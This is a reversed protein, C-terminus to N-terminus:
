TCESAPCRRARPAPDKMIMAEDKAAPGASRRRARPMYKLQTPWQHSGAASMDITEYDATANGQGSTGGGCQMIKGPLYMVSSAHNYYSFNRLIDASWRPVTWDLVATDTRPGSMFVSGAPFVVSNITIAEPLVYMYPHM